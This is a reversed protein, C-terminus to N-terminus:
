GLRALLQRAGNIAGIQQQMQLELNVAQEELQKRQAMLGHLHREWQEIRQEIIERMM